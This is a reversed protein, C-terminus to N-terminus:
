SVRDKHTNVPGIAQFRGPPTTFSLGNSTQPNLWERWLEKPVIIPQAPVKGALDAGPSTMLISFSSPGGTGLGSNLACGIMALPDPTFNVTWVDVWSTNPLAIISRFRTAPLLGRIVMKTDVREGYQDDGQRDERGWQLTSAAVRGREGYIVRVSGRRDLRYGGSALSHSALGQCERKQLEQVIQAGPVGCEITHIM